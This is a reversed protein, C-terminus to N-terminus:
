GRSVISAHPVSDLRHKCAESSVLLSSLPDPGSDAAFSTVEGHFLVEWANVVDVPNSHTAHVETGRSAPGGPSLGGVQEGVHDIAHSLNGVVLLGDSDGLVGADRVALSDFSLVDPDGVEEIVDLLVSDTHNGVEVQILVFVTPLVPGDESSGITVLGVGSVASGELSVRAVSLRNSVIREEDSSIGVVILEDGVDVEISSSSAGDVVVTEGSVDAAVVLDADLWSISL